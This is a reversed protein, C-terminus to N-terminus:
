IRGGPNAAADATQPQPAAAPDVPPPLNDPTINMLRLSGAMVKSFVPASVLGGFYGAKSPEDIVVMMAIRPNSSPAFGAFMSRYANATYGKTGVSAKRATGSKGSVHYGPV